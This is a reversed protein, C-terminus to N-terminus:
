AEIWFSALPGMPYYKAMVSSWPTTFSAFTRFEHTNTTISPDTHLGFLMLMAPILHVSDWDYWHPLILFANSRCGFIESVVIPLKTLGGQRDYWSATSLWRKLVQTSLYNRSLIRMLLFATLFSFFTTLFCSSILWVPKFM